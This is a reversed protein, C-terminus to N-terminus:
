RFRRGRRCLMALIIPPVDGPATGLNRDEAFWWPPLNARQEAVTREVEEATPERAETLTAYRDRVAPDASCPKCLGRGALWRVAGCEACPSKKM